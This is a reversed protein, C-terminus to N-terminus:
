GEIYGFSYFVTIEFRLTKYIYPLDKTIIDTYKQSALYIYIIYSVYSRHYITEWNKSLM